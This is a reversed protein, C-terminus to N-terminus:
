IKVPAKRKGPREPTPGDRNFLLWVGRVQVWGNPKSSRPGRWESSEAWCSVSCSYFVAMERRESKGRGHKEPM